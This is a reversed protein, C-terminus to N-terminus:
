QSFSSSKKKLKWIKFEGINQQDTFLGSYVKLEHVVRTIHKVARKKWEREWNKLRMGKGNQRKIRYTKKGKRKKEREFREKKKKIVKEIESKFIERERERKRDRKWEKEIFIFKLIFPLEKQILITIESRNM